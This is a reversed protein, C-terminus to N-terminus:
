QPGRDSHQDWDCKTTETDPGSFRQSSMGTEMADLAASLWKNFPPSYPSGPDLSKRASQKHGEMLWKADVETEVRRGFEEKAGSSKQRIPDATLLECWSLWKWEPWGPNGRKAGIVSKKRKPKTSNEPPTLILEGSVIETNPLLNKQIQIQKQKKSRVSDPTQGSKRAYEDRYKLVNPITVMIDSGTRKVTVLHTVELKLLAQSVHSGRLSLLHSWTSVPYTVTPFSDGEVRKAVIELVMWWLGYGAHGYKSILTAIKEDQRTDTMHKLWRMWAV